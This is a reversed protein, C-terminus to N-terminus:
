NGSDGGTGQGTAAGATSAAEQPVPISWIVVNGLMVLAVLLMLGAQKREGRRWLFVGGAALALAALAVISLVTDM